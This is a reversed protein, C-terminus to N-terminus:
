ATARRVGCRSTRTVYEAETLVDLRYLNFRGVRVAGPAQPDPTALLGRRKWDRLLAPTLDGGLLDSAQGATVYDVGALTIV